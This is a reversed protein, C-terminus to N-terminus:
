NEWEVVVMDHVQYDRLAATVGTDTTTFAVPTDTDPYFIRKVTKGAPPHVTLRPSKVMDLRSDYNLLHVMMRNRDPQQRVTVETEVGVGAVEVPLNAQQHALGGKVMAALIERANPWFDKRNADNEWESAVHCLGPYIPTWFYCLGTGVKNLLVAPDGNAFAALTEATTPKVKDYGLPMDYECVAGPALGPLAAGGTVTYTGISRVPKVERHVHNRVAPLAMGAEVPLPPAKLQFCLTDNLAPDTVGAFGAYDVGFVDALRYNERVAPLFDFLSSSGGAILVGGQKVWERLLGTQADTLIKADTMVIARYRALKDATLTETWIVDAPIQSQQLATWLSAQQQYWRAGLPSSDNFHLATMESCLQAVNAASAPVELYEKIRAAKQFITRANDWRTNDWTWNYWLPYKFVQELAFNYFCEGHMLHQAFGRVEHAASPSYWNYYEGMVPRAEGDKHMELMFANDRGFSQYAEPGPADVAGGVPGTVGIYKVFIRHSISFTYACSKRMGHMWEQSERWAAIMKEGCFQAFETKLPGDAMKASVVYDAPLGYQQRPDKGYKAQFWAEFEGPAAGVQPYWEESWFGAFAPENQYRQLILDGAPKEIETMGVLPLVDLWLLDLEGARQIVEFFKVPDVGNMGWANHVGTFGAEKLYPLFSPWDEKFGIKRAFDPRGALANFRKRVAYFRDQSALFDAQAIGPKALGGANILELALEAHGQLGLSKDTSYINSAKTGAFAAQNGFVHGKSPFDNATDRITELAPLAASDGINGLSRIAALMRKRQLWNKKDGTTVIALLEPVAEKAKLWGLALIANEMTYTDSDAVRALLPKVARTDGIQGLAQVARRKMRVDQGEALTILAPVAEKAQMWGLALIANIRVQEDADALAEILASASKPDGIRGLELAAEQRVTVDTSSLNKILEPIRVADAQRERALRGAKAAKVLPRLEAIAKEARNVHEALQAEPMLAERAERGHFFFTMARTGHDIPNASRSRSVAAKAEGIEAATKDTAAAIRMLVNSPNLYPNEVILEDITMRGIRAATETMAKQFRADLTAVAKELEVAAEDARARGAGSLQRGMDRLTYLRSELPIARRIRGDPIVGVGMGPGRENLTWDWLAERRLLDLEAQAQAKAVAVADRKPASALWDLITLLMQREPGALANSVAGSGVFAGFAVYRGGYPEGSVGVPDGGCMAFVKGEAGVKVPMHDWGGPSFPQEIAQALESDGFGSIFSGNVRNYTAGVQPFLPRSASRVYGSRFGTALIGKGGAVFQTLSRRATYKPFYYQGWGGTFLIVDVGALATENTLAKDDLTVTQWGAEQLTQLMGDTALARADKHIGVTKGFGAQALVAAVWLVGVIRAQM